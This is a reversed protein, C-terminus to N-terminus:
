LEMVKDMNRLHRVFIKVSHLAHFLCSHCVVCVGRTGMPGINITSISYDGYNGPELGCMDCPKNSKFRAHQWINDEDNMIGDGQICCM